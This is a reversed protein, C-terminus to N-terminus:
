GVTSPRKLFEYRFMNYILNTFGINFDARQIGISRLEMGHMVTTMFGFVHEVRCRIKAKRNNNEKQEETLPKQKTSRETIENKVTEPLAEAVPKGWYASDAYLVQDKEDILEPIAQSDHVKASTALYDTIIKSEADIKVHNKYGYYGVGCKRTWRADTDKQRLKNINEPKTWEEPIKDEKIAENEEGNNRGRPAEVFSADVITGTRTILNADELQKEFMEFLERAVEAKVLMERFHWITKADPVKEAFSIGLFRSFSIRDNIQFETQDDSLNYVRQLILIKFLMVYDYPPRGGAGKHEKKLVRNLVPRFMEWDVVKNLRELSDGMKSIKELRNEEDFIGLQM